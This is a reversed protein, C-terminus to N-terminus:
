LNLAKVELYEELGYTGWERGNGSQKYGGFPASLNAKQGNIDVNGARIRRAVKKAREVDGGYVGAHLGYITDNAIRIADDDDDYGIISIVPGFIEEQAITMDNTVGKFITPKVFYGTEHGEPKGPGGTVVEAGEEIGLNLYGQVRDWQTQSVLPGLMAGYGEAIEKAKAAVEDVKDQPVLMRSWAVCAQGSNLYCQGIGATVAEDIPADDLIVYPSKGGLELAVRKVTKSAVESVRRGAATSGTFSIMDVDPHAALAEGVVPGTGSVLNFVGPPLGIDNLVEALFYATLPTVESPKVVFTCGALLGPIIKCTIQHLPFNWPTIAGVVGIPEKVVLSGNLDAEWEFRDAIEVYNSIMGMPLGVQIMQSLNEPMGLEETILSALENMRGMLQENLLTLYKVRDEVNSQGWTEFAKRAAAVAKDVDASSGEPVSGIVQETVPNRVEITGTSESPIFAGDAYITDYTKM